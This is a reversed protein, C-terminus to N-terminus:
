CGGVGNAVNKERIHAALGREHSVFATEIGEDASLVAVMLSHKMSAALVDILVAIGGVVDFVEEADELLAHNADVMEAALLM